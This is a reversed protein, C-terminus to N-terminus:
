QVAARPKGADSRIRRPPPPKPLADLAQIIAVATKSAGATLTIQMALLESGDDNTITLKPM